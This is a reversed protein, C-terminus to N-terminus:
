RTQDRGSVIRAVEELWTGIHGEIASTEKDALVRDAWEEVSDAGRASYIM